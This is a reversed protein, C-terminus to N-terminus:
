QLAYFYYNFFDKKGGSESKIFDDGALSLFMINVLQALQALLLFTRSEKWNGGRQELTM